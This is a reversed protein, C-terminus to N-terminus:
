KITFSDNLVRLDAGSFGTESSGNPRVSTGDTHHDISNNHKNSQEQPVGASTAVEPGPGTRIYIQMAQQQQRRKIRTYQKKLAYIDTSMREMMMSNIAAQHEAKAGGGGAGVAGVAGPSLEAINGQEARQ